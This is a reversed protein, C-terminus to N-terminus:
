GLKFIVTQSGRYTGLHQRKFGCKTAVKISARHDPHIICVFDSRNLHQQGWRLAAGAAETAYGKRQKARALVWGLEPIGGLPPEMDRKFDGFGVEGVFDGTEIEEVLWYGFGRLSWHGAYRLFRAWCEEATLPKGGIYEVVAPDQWLTATHAFDGM